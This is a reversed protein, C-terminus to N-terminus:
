KKSKLHYVLYSMFEAKTGTTDSSCIGHDVLYNKVEKATMMWLYITPSCESRVLGDIIDCKTGTVRTGALKCMDNVIEKNVYKELFKHMTSDLITSTSNDSYVDDSNDSRGAPNSDSSSPSEFFRVTKTNTSANAKKMIPFAEAVSDTRARKLPMPPPGNRTPLQVPPCPAKRKKDGGCHAFSVSSASKESVFDKMYMNAHADCSQLLCFSGDPNYASCLKVMKFNNFIIQSTLNHGEIPLVWERLNDASREWGNM